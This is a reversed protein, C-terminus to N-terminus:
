AQPKPSGGLLGAKAAQFEEESLTGDKRLASLRELQAVTSDESTATAPERGPRRLGSRIRGGLGGADADPFELAAQRRLVETGLVMLAALLLFGIPKQFATVPAWLVLALFVLAVVAYTAGRRDRLYPAAERRLATAPGTPGALWAGIVVLIGFTIMSVAITVLLSTGISWTADVAPQVSATSALTSTVEQGALGRVVLTLIGAVILGFGASRLTERRRGHALFVALAYLAFALVTLVIALGKILDAADQAAALQDSKLITISGADAPIKSALDGGVGLQAAVQTVLGNLNLTVDGGTTSLAPGGGDLLKLLAEHAARNAQEWLGQVQPSALAREAVRQGLQRLGGAAPGALPQLQPPLSQALEAEVDVNAYLQSVLFLSLQDQIDKNELLETSTNVWNDTNLAQRNAWVSFSALFALLTALVLLVTVIGRRPAKSQETSRAPAEM